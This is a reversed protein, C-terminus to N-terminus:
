NDRMMQKDRFLDLFTSLEKNKDEDGPDILKDRPFICIDKNFDSHYEKFKKEWDNKVDDEEAFTSYLFVGYEPNLSYYYFLKMAMTEYEHKKDRKFLRIDLGICLKQNISEEKIEEIKKKIAEFKDNKENYIQFFLPEPLLEKKDEWVKMPPKEDSSNAACFLEFYDSIDNKLRYEVKDTIKINLGNEKCDDGVFIVQSSVNIEWLKPFLNEAVIRMKSVNDDIWIIKKM